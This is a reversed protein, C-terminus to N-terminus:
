VPLIVNKTGGYAPPLETPPIKRLIKPIWRSPITGYVETRALFNGMLPKAMEILQHVIPNANVIFGYAYNKYCKELKVWNRLSMKFDAYSTLEANEIGIFDIIAVLEDEDVGIESENRKERFYGTLIREVLQDVGKEFNELDEGGKEAIERTNWRAIEMVLVPRGEYDYGSKYYAFLPQLKEPLTWELLKIDPVSYNAVVNGALVSIALFCNLVVTLMM